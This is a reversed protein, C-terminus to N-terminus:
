QFKFSRTIIYDNGAQGHLRSCHLILRIKTSNPKPISGLAGVVTLKIATTLANGQMIEERIVQEVKAKTSPDTTSKYISMDVATLKASIDVLKFGNVVGDALFAELNPKPTFQLSTTM